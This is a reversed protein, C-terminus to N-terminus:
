ASASDAVSTPESDNKLQEVGRTGLGSVDQAVEFLEAILDAPQDNLVQVDDADKFMKEGTTPEVASMVILKVRYNEKLNALGNVFLKEYEFREGATIKRFGVSGEWADVKVTKVATTPIRNARMADKNIPM